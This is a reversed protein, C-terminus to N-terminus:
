VAASLRRRELTQCRYISQGFKEDRWCTQQFNPFEGSLHSLEDVSELLIRSEGPLWYNADLSALSTTDEGGVLLM